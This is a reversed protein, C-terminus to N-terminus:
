LIALHFGQAQRPNNTPKEDNCEDNTRSTNFMRVPFYGRLIADNKIVTKFSNWRLREPFTDLLLLISDKCERPLTIKINVNVLITEWNVWGRAIIKEWTVLLV